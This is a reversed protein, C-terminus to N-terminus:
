LAVGLCAARDAKRRNLIGGCNNAPIACDTKGGNVFRWQMFQECAAPFDRAIYKKRLTSNKYNGIGANYAFDIVAVKQGQTLTDFGPTLERVAAAYDALSTDLMAKCEVMSYPRMEIHTEGFCVTAISGGLKDSYPTLSVGENSATLVILLAAAGGGIIAALSKKNPNM